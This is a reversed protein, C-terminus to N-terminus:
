ATIALLKNSSPSVIHATFTYALTLWILYLDFRRCFIGGAIGARGNSSRWPYVRSTGKGNTPANFVGSICLFIGPVM